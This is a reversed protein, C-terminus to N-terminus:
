LDPFLMMCAAMLCHLCFYNNYFLSFISRQRCNIFVVLYLEVFVSIFNDSMKTILIHIIIVTIDELTSVLTKTELRRSCLFLTKTKTKTKFFRRRRSIRPEPRSLFNLFTKLLKLSKGSIITLHKSM